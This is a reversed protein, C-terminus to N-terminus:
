TVKSLATELDTVVRPCGPHVFPFLYAIATRSTQTRGLFSLWLSKPYVIQSCCDLAPLNDYLTHTEERFGHPRKHKERGQEPSTCTRCSRRCLLSATENPEIGDVSHRWGATDELYMDIDGMVCALMANLRRDPSLGRRPSHHPSNTM